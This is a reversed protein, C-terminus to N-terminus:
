AAEPEIPSPSIVESSFPWPVASFDPEDKALMMMAWGSCIHGERAPEHCHFEIGEMICKLVDMQTEPSGNALHQGARLACSNCRPPLEPLRLRAKPEAEDCFRAMHEGLERGEPTARNRILTM